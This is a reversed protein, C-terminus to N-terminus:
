INNKITDIIYKARAVTTGKDLLWRRQNNLMQIYEETPTNNVLLRNVISNLEDPSSYSYCPLDQPSCTNPKQNYDRFLLLSGAAIIEYHRLCDWGGKKCTLGFWSKEMDEYYPEEETFVHHHRTGMEPDYGFRAFSPATKAFLQTKKNFDIERIQYEPIGFGTPYVKDQPFILERKFSNTKQNGIIHQGNHHGMVPASGYMDHGDLYWIRNEPYLKTIFSYDPYGDYHTLTGFLVVDFSGLDISKRDISLNKLPYKYLSFGRGHLEDKTTESWDHYMIKKEPYDVFNDGLITKLGHFISVELLDGQARPNATTIYLMKLEAM